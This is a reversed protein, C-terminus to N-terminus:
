GCLLVFDAAVKQAKEAGKHSLILDIPGYRWTLKVLLYLVSLLSV